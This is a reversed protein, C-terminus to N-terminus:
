KDFKAHDKALGRTPENEWYASQQYHHHLALEYQRNLEATSDFGPSAKIAERDLNVSVKADEWSIADIWNPSILVRHGGWWNATDVVLYRLAWTDEDVLMGQVHGIDGDRAHIHYGILATCSRLHPDDKTHHMASVAAKEVGSGQAGPSMLPDYMGDEWLSSDGWYYPYGYYDAYSTEHQRSVPKDTDIDPSNKVQERNVRVPLRKHMWDPQMVFYPSILVKKSMLWSGTEVVLYRIVWSEDDFFFDTVHGIEGDTAGITYSTLEQMSRLM